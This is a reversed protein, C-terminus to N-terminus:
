RGDLFLVAPQFITFAPALVQRVPSQSRRREATTMRNVHFVRLVKTEDTSEIMRAAALLYDGAANRGFVEYGVTPGRRSRIILSRGRLMEAIDEDGYGHRYASDTLVIEEYRPLM